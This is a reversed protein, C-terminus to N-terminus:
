PMPTGLLEPVLTNPVVKSARGATLLPGRLADKVRSQRADDAQTPCM